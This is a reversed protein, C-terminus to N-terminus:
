PHLFFPVFNVIAKWAPAPDYWDFYDYAAPVFFSACFVLVAQAAPTVGPRDPHTFSEITSTIDGGLHRMWKGVQYSEVRDIRNGNAWQYLLYPFDVGCRVALEISASLRPNIEMLYPKGANDRRFEIEAYGELDIERVLHEAQAGIDSPIAISQRYVSTGGLQPYTRKAWQAFRAYVVDHAYMLNVSERRGSLFQQFLTTGGQQILVEVALRAETLTKAVKCVLRVGQQEGWLWSEVPKIVVPLGLELVAAEVEGVSRVEIGRPIGIGLQQAVELTRKKNVAIALASEKALAINVSREIDERYQRILALTADSSTILVSAGTTDIAQQLCALFPELGQEYGPAAFSQQCWRSSFAPIRSCDKAKGSNVIEMAAVRMGRRGLSRLAVLSQRLTADLILADYKSSQRERQFDSVQQKGNDARAAMTNKQGGERSTTEHQSTVYDKM